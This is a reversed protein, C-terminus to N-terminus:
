LYTGRDLAMNLMNLKENLKDIEDVRQTLQIKILDKENITGDLQKKLKM